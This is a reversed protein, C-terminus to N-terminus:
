WRRSFWDKKPSFFYSTNMINSLTHDLVIRIHRSGGYWVCFVHGIALRIDRSVLVGAGGKKRQRQKYQQRWGIPRDTWRGTKDFERPTEAHLDLAFEVSHNAHNIAHGLPFSLISPDAFSTKSYNRRHMTERTTPSPPPRSAASGLVSDNDLQQKYHTDVSNSMSFWSLSPVSSVTHYTSVGQETPVNGTEKGREMKKPYGLAKKRSHKDAGKSWRFALISCLQSGSSLFRGTIVESM